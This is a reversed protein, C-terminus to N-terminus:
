ARRDGRWARDTLTEAPTFPTPTPVPYLRYFPPQSDPRRLVLIRPEEPDATYEGDPHEV